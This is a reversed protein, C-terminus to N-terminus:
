VRETGSASATASDDAHKARDEGEGPLSAIPSTASLDGEENAMDLMLPPQPPEHLPTSPLEMRPVRGTRTNPKPKDPDTM